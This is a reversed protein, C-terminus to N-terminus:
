YNYKRDKNEVETIVYSIIRNGLYFMSQKLDIIKIFKKKRIFLFIQRMFDKEVFLRYTIGKKLCSIRM